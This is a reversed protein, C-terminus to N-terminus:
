VFWIWGGRTATFPAFQPILPDSRDAEEEVTLSEKTGKSGLLQQVTMAVAVGPDIAYQLTYRYYRILFERFTQEAHPDLKVSSDEGNM